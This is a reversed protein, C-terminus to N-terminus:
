LDGYFEESDIGMPTYYHKVAFRVIDEKLLFDDEVIDDQM